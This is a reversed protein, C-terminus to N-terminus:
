DGQRAARRNACAQEITARVPPEAEAAQRMCDAYETAPDKVPAPPATADAGGAGQVARRVSDSHAHVRAVAAASEAPTLRPTEPPASAISDAPAGLEPRPTEARDACGALLLILLATRM